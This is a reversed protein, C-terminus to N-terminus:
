LMSEKKKDNRRPEVFFTGISRWIEQSLLVLRLLKLM